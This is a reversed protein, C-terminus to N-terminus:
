ALKRAADVSWPGAGAAALYLFVFCFLVASEGANAIPFFGRPAHGIFYAFALEGSLIFAALQTWFGILLMVGFIIEIWGAFWTLAFVAPRSTNLPFGVIKSLGHQLILFAVMIRLISLIYPAARRAANELGDM